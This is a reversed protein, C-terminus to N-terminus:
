GLLNIALGIIVCVALFKGWRRLTERGVQRSNRNENLSISLCLVGSLYVASTLHIVGATTM